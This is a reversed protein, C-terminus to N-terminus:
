GVWTTLRSVRTQVRQDDYRPCWPADLPGKLDQRSALERFRRRHRREPRCAWQLNTDSVRNKEVSWLTFQVERGCPSTGPALRKMVGGGCTM